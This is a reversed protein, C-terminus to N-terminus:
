NELGADLDVLRNRVTEILEGCDHGLQDARNFQDLADQFLGQHYYLNGLRYRFLGNEPAIEVSQQCFVTTIEAREGQLDFLYGLASLSEADNANERLARKYAGIADAVRNLKLYCQGLKRHAAGSGPSLAVAKELMARATQPRDDELYLSGLQYAVDFYQDNRAAAQEFRERAQQRDGLRLHALGANYLAMVETPDLRAATEFHELAKELSGLVGYCVGLSNTLNACDPNLVLGRKYEDIAGLIDGRDYHEDGSINLSVDDFLVQSGPGFFAAHAMAKRGNMFIDQPQYDLVPHVAMGMTVATRLTEPLHDGLKSAMHRCAEADTGPLICGLLTPGLWGWFGSERECFAELASVAAALGGADEGGAADGATHMPQGDMPQVHLLILAFPEQSQVAALAERQFDATGDGAQSQIAPQPTSRPADSVAGLGELNSKNLLFPHNNEKPQVSRTM